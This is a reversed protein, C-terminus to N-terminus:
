DNLENDFYEVLWSQLVEDNRVPTKFVKGYGKCLILRLESGVNKKDKALAGCFKEVDLSKIVYGKWIEQLLERIDMRIKSDVLRKRPCLFRCTSM